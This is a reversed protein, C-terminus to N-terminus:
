ITPGTSGLWFLPITHTHTHEPSHPSFTASLVVLKKKKKKQSREGHASTGLGSVSGAWLLSRLQQLSLALDKVQRVVLCSWSVCAINLLDSVALRFPPFGRVSYCTLSPGKSPFVRPNNLLKSNMPYSATLAPFVRLLEKM